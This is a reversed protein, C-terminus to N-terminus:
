HRVVQRGDAGHAPAAPAEAAGAARRGAPGRGASADELLRRMRDAGANVRDEVMKPRGRALRGTDHKSFLENLRRTEKTAEAQAEGMTKLTEQFTESSAKWAEVAKMATDTAVKQTELAVEVRGKEAMLADRDRILYWVGGTTLLFAVAFFGAAYWAVTNFIPM